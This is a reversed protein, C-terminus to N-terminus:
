ELLKRVEAPVEPLKGPLASRLADYAMMAARLDVKAEEWTTGDKAAVVADRYTDKATIFADLTALKGGPADFAAAAVTVAATVNEGNHQAKDAAANIADMREALVISKAAAATVDLITYAYSHVLIPMPKASHSCASLSLMIGAALIRTVVNRQTRIM